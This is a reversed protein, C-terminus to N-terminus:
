SKENLVIYNGIALVDLDCDFFGNISDQPSCVIPQEHINFSTNLVVPFGTLNYFDKILKYYSENVEIKVFQPRATGDIHDIAPIKEALEPNIYYTVSM